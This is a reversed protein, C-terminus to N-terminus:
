ETIFFFNEFFNDYHYKLQLLIFKGEQKTTTENSTRPFYKLYNFVFCLTFMIIFKLSFLTLPWM